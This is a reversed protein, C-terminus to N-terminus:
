NTLITLGQPAGLKGCTACSYRFDVLVTRYPRSTKLDITMKELSVGPNLQQFQKHRTRDGMGSPKEFGQPEKAFSCDNCLQVWLEVTMAPTDSINTVTFDVTLVGDSGTPIARIVDTPSKTLDEPWFAFQLQAYKVPAVGVKSISGSLDTDTQKLAETLSKDQTSLQNKLEQIQMTLDTIMSQYQDGVVKTVQKSTESAVREVAQEQGISAAMEQRSMQLWTAGSLAIGFAIIGWRWFRHKRIREDVIELVLALVTPAIVVSFALIRDFM